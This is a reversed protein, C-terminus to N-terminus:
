VLETKDVLHQHYQGFIKLNKTMINLIQLAKNLYHQEAFVFDVFFGYEFPREIIPISQIKTLNLQCDNMVNLVAALSGPQDNLEFKMSVKNGIQNQEQQQNLVFFRTRNNKTTQVDKLLIDLDFMNATEESAIAMVNKIQHKAIYEAVQATDKDEVVKIHPYKKLTEKCQLLAMPHSRVENIQEITQVKLAMFCHLIDLYYEAEINLQYQDILAYNPIIAGAISNEIAMIGYNAQGSNVAIAVKEFSDCAITQIEKGYLVTAVQHHYSGISGQIAIIINQKNNM